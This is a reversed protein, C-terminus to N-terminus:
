SVLTLTHDFAVEVQRKLKHDLNMARGHNLMYVMVLVRNTLPPNKQNESGIGEIKNILKKLAPHSILRQVNQNMMILFDDAEDLMGTILLIVERWKDDSLYEQLLKSLKGARFNDKLYRATFYEQFTLHSFSYISKARQVFIGHQWVIAELISESDIDLTEDQANPLNIIFDSIKQTLLRQPIFYQGKDFTEAAIRSFMSEKRKLSLSKYVEDRKIRKTADWKKLLADVAEKYLEARNPPFGMTEDFALCLLTLLLPIAALEKIHKDKRIKEWCFNAVAPEGLFWNKIFIDIQEDNFDAIEFDVFKSFWHNYAAIRCSIVFQNSSYKDSFDNIQNIINDQLSKAVEDLGDLLLLCKGKEFMKVLFSEAEPFQCIDFQEVIFDFLTMKSDSLDKLGIFVPIRKKETKGDISYLALYKLFTTKGSGPKGL